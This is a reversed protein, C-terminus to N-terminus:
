DDVSGVFFRKQRADGIFLGLRRAEDRRSLKVGLLRGLEGQQHSTINRVFFMILNFIGTALVLSATLILGTVLILRNAWIM